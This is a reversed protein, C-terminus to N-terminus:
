GLLLQPGFYETFELEPDAGGSGNPPEPILTLAITANALKCEEPQHFTLDIYILGAKKGEIEGWKTKSFLFCCDVRVSGIKFNALSASTQNECFEVYKMPKVQLPRSRPTPRRPM